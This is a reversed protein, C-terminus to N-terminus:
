TLKRYAQKDRNLSFKWLQNIGYILNKVQTPLKEYISRFFMFFKSRSKKNPNSNDWMNQYDSQLPFKEFIPADKIKLAHVMISIPSRSIFTNRRKLTAPDTVVYCEQKESLEAGPFPHRVLIISKTEFGNNQDFIRFFLEPSFQYFGHGCHNNANTFIFISGGLKVMKMYNQIAVPFNFIHEISGGDILTDFNNYLKEEIPYNLDTVIDAGEYDSYDIVRLNNISLYEKIIDDSYGRKQFHSKDFQASINFNSILHNNQKVSLSLKQRGILVTDDFSAGSNKADLLFKLRSFILGM